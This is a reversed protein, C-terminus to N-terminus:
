DNKEEKNYKSLLESKHSMFDFGDLFSKNGDTNEDNEDIELDAFESLAVNDMTDEARDILNKVSIGSFIAYIKSYDSNEFSEGIIKYSDYKGILEMMTDYRECFRALNARVREDKLAMARLYTPNIRKVFDRAIAESDGSGVMRWLRSLDEPMIVEMASFVGSLINNLTTKIIAIAKIVEANEIRDMTIKQMESNLRIESILFSQLAVLRRIFFSNYIFGAILWLLVVPLSVGSIVMFINTTETIPSVVTLYYFCVAGWSFTLLLLLGFIFIIAM